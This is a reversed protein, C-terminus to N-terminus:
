RQVRGSKLRSVIRQHLGKEYDGRAHAVGPMSERGFYVREVNLRCGDGLDEVLLTTVGTGKGPKQAVKQFHDPNVGGVLSQPVVTDQGLDRWNEAEESWSILGDDKSVALLRMGNGTGEDVVVPWVQDCPAQVIWEEIVPEPIMQATPVGLNKSACAQLLALAFVLFIVWPEPLQRLDRVGKQCLLSRRARCHHFGVSRNRQARSNRKM